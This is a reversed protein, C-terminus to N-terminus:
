IIQIKIQRAALNAPLLSVKQKWDLPSNKKFILRYASLGYIPGDINSTYHSALKSIFSASPETTALFSRHLYGLDLGTNLLAYLEQEISSLQTSVIPLYNAVLRHFSSIFM